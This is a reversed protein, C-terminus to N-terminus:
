CQNSSGPHFPCLNSVNDSGNCLDGFTFIYTEKKM